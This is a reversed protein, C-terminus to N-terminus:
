WLLSSSSVKVVTYVDPSAYQLCVTVKHWIMLRKVGTQTVKLDSQRVTPLGAEHALLV